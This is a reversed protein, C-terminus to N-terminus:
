LCLSLSLLQRKLGYEPSNGFMLSLTVIVDVFDLNVNEALSDKPNYSLSSILNILHTNDKIYLRFAKRLNTKTQKSRLAKVNNQSPLPYFVQQIEENIVFQFCHHNENGDLIYIDPHNKVWKLFDAKYQDTMKDSDAIYIISFCKDEM